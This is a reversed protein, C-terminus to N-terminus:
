SKLNKRFNHPSTGEIKKFVKCFYSPDLYGVKLAISNISLDTESLLKKSYNIRIKSIYDIFNMNMTKKFYRSFYQPSLHIYKAVDELTINKNYNEDIYRIVEKILSPEYPKYLKIMNFIIDIYDSILKKMHTISELKSIKTSFENSLKILKDEIFGNQNSIFDIIKIFLITIFEKIDDSKICLHEEIIKNVEIKVAIKDGIKIKEFLVVNKNIELYTKLNVSNIPLSNQTKYLVAKYISKMLDDPRVPKLLYDIAGIKIAQQAYQFEDYATIIITKISPNTKLIEKTAKIGDMGPMKIDMLIVDPNLNKAKEIVDIGNNAEGILKFNDNKGLIISIAKREISEDDAILVKYM